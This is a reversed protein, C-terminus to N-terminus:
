PENRFPTVSPPLSRLSHVVSSVVSPVLRLHPLTHPTSAYRSAFSHLRFVSPVPSSRPFCVTLRNGVRDRRAAPVASRRSASGNVPRLGSRLLFHHPLASLRSASGDPPWSRLGFSTFRLSPLHVVHTFRGTHVYHSVLRSRESRNGGMRPERQERWEETM